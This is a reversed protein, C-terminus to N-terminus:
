IEVKQKRDKWHMAKDKDMWDVKWLRDRSGEKSWGKEKILGVILGILERANPRTEPDRSTCRNIVQCFGKRFPNKHNRRREFDLPQMSDKRSEFPFYGNALVFLTVGLSYIDDKHNAPTPEFFAPYRQPSMFSPCSPPAPDTEYTCLGFDGLVFLPYINNAGKPRSKMFINNMKIDNHVIPKWGQRGERKRNEIGRNLFLLAKGMDITLQWVFAEPIFTRPRKSMYKLLIESVDGLNCYETFIHGFPDGPTAAARGFTKLITSSEPKVAGLAKLAQSETEWSIARARDGMSIRKAIIKQGNKVPRYFTSTVGKPSDRLVEIIATAGFCGANHRKIIRLDNDYGGALPLEYPKPDGSDNTYGGEPALITALRNCRPDNYPVQPFMRRQAHKLEPEEAQVTYETFAPGIGSPRPTDYDDRGLNYIREEAEIFEAQRAYEAEMERADYREDGGRRYDVTGRSERTQTYDTPNYGRSQARSSGIDEQFRTQTAYNREKAIIASKISEERGSYERGVTPSRVKEKGKWSRGGKSGHQIYKEPSPDWAAPRIDRQPRYDPEGHRPSALFEFGDPGRGSLRSKSYSQEELRRLERLREASAEKERISRGTRMDAIEESLMLERESHRKHSDLYDAGKKSELLSQKIAQAMELEELEQRRAEERRSPVMRSSAGDIRASKRSYMRSPQSMERELNRVSGGLSEFKSRLRRPPSDDMRLNDGYIRSPRDATGFEPDRFSNQVSPVRSSTRRSGIDEGRLDVGPYREEERPPSDLRRGNTSPHYSHNIFNVM